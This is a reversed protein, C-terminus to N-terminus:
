YYVSVEGDTLSIWEETSALVGGTLSAGLYYTPAAILDALAGNYSPGGILVEQTVSPTLTLPNSLPVDAEGPFVCLSEPPTTRGYVRVTAPSTGASTYTADARFDAGRFGSPAAETVPSPVYCVLGASSNGPIVLDGVPIRIPAFSCGALLASCAAAGFLVSRLPQLTLNGM